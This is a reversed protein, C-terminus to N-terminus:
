ASGEGAPGVLKFPAGAPDAAAALRGYPTDIGPALVTGGLETVKALAADTDAV